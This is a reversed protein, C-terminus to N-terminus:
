RRDWVPIGAGLLRKVMDATGRGGTFAVAADPKGENIMQQNRIHGAGKGHADWDAPYRAVPINNREAWQACLRDAGRAEGEILASIGYKLNIADLAFQVEDRGSFDRGGTVLIRKSM